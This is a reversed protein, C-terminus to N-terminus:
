LFVYFVFLIVIYMQVQNIMIFMAVTLTWAAPRGRLVPAAPPLGPIPESTDPEEMNRLLTVM